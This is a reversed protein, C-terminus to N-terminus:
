RRIMSDFASRSCATSFSLVPPLYVAAPWSWGDLSHRSLGVVLDSVSGPAEQEPERVIVATCTAGAAERWHYVEVGGFDKGALAGIRGAQPATGSELGGGHRSAREDHGVRSRDVHHELTPRHPLHDVTGNPTGGGRVALQAFTPQSGAAPCGRTAERDSLGGWRREGANGFRYGAPRRYGGVTSRKLCGLRERSGYQSGPAGWSGM